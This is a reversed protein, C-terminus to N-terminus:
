ITFNARSIRLEFISIRFLNLIRIKLDRFHVAPLTTRKSIEIKSMQFQKPNRVESKSSQRPPTLNSALCHYEVQNSDSRTHFLSLKSKEFTEINRFHNSPKDQGRLVEEPIEGPM